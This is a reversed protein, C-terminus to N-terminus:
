VKRLMNEAWLILAILFCSLFAQDKLASLNFTGGFDPVDNFAILQNPGRGVTESFTMLSRQETKFNTQWCVPPHRSNLFTKRKRPDRTLSPGYM